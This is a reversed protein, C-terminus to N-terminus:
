QETRVDLLGINCMALGSTSFCDMDTGLMIGRLNWDIDYLFCFFAITWRWLSRGMERVSLPAERGVFATLV